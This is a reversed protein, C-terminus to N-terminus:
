SWIQTAIFFSMRQITTTVIPVFYNSLSTTVRCPGNQTLRQRWIVDNFLQPTWSPAKCPLMFGIDSHRHVLLKTSPWACQLFSAQVGEGRKADMQVSLLRSQSQTM